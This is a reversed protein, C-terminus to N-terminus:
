PRVLLKQVGIVAGDDDDDSDSNAAFDPAHQLGAEALLGRMNSHRVGVVAGDDDDDSDSNAALDPADGKMATGGAVDLPSRVKRKRTEETVTGCHVIAGAVLALGIGIGAAAANFDGAMRTDEPDMARSGKALILFVILVLFTSHAYAGDFISIVVNSAITVFTVLMKIALPGMAVFGIDSDSAKSVNGMDMAEEATTPVVAAATGIHSLPSSATSTEMSLLVSEKLRDTKEFYEELYDVICSVLDEHDVFRNACDLEDEILHLSRVLDSITDSYSYCYSYTDAPMDFKINVNSDFDNYRNQAKLLDNEKTGRFGSAIEDGLVM